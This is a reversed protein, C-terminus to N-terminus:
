RDVRPVARIALASLLAAAAGVYLAVAFTGTALFLWGLLPQTVLQAGRSANYFTSAATARIAPPYNEAFLVGFCSWTGAGLGLLAFLLGFVRLDGVATEFGFALLLLGAAFLLCFAIFTRRRGFRDALPGFAVDALVHVANVGIQFLGVFALSMGRDRILHAPLWAYTCWFGTMHLALLALLAFSARARV